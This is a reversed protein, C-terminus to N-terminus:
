HRSDILDKYDANKLMKRWYDKIEEAITLIMRKRPSEGPLFADIGECVV